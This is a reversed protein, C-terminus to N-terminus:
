MVIKWAYTIYNNAENVKQKSIKGPGDFSCYVLKMRRAVVNRVIYYNNVGLGPNTNEIDQCSSPGPIPAKPVGWPFSNYDQKVPIEEETKKEKIPRNSELQFVKAKLHDIEKEQQVNKEKFLAL